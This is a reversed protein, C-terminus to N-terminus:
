CTLQELMLQNHYFRGHNLTVLSNVDSRDIIQKEIDFSTKKIASLQNDLNYCNYNNMFDERVEEPFIKILMEISNTNITIIGDEIGKLILKVVTKVGIGKIPEISRMKDGTASLLLYYFQKRSFIDIITENVDDKFADTLTKKINTSLTSGLPSKRIYHMIFRDNFQYQTDYLDHSILFNKRTPDMSSIILPIASGEVNRANIFYVNPIFQSITMIDPIITEVLKEGLYAYRPNNLFKNIFYSM